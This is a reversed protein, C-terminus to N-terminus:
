VLVAAQNDGLTRALIRAAWPLLFFLCVMGPLAILTCAIFFAPWGMFEAMYGTPAALFIRPVGMVSTLLAYQTATFRKNTQTAMYATFAATGM